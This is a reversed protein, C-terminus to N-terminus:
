RSMPRQSRACPRRLTAASARVLPWASAHFDLIADVNPAHAFNAVFLLGGREEFPPGAPAEAHVNSVVTVPVEPALERLAAADDESVAVLADAAGYIAQERERTREAAALAAPDGSLVAGRRERVHHVDVTDIAIRTLPSHRRLLPLYQEAVEYFSLLAVDFRGRACLAAFDLEPGPLAAGRERLRARDLPHVDIGLAALEAAYREQGIGCRALFTVRHGEAALLELLRFLRLSGSHRDHLPLESHVVLIRLAGDAPHSPSM